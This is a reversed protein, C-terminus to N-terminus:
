QGCVQSVGCKNFVTNLFDLANNCQTIDIAKLCVELEDREIQDCAASNWLSNFSNATEVECDDRTEFTKGPGIEGCSQYWNCARSTAASRAGARDYPGCALSLSAMVLFLSSLISRPM